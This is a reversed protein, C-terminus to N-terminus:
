RTIGFQEKLIIEGRSTLYYQVEHEDMIIDIYGQAVCYEIFAGGIAFPNVRQGDM